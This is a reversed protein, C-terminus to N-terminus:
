AAEVVEWTKVFEVTTLSFPAPGCGSDPDVPADPQTSGGYDVVWRGTYSLSPGTDLSSDACILRQAQLALSTSLLVIKTFLSFHMTPQTPQWKISFMCSMYKEILGEVPM